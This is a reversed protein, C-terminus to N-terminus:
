PNLVRQPIIRGSKPQPLARTVDFAVSDRSTVLGISRGFFRGYGVIASGGGLRLTVVRAGGPFDATGVTWRPARSFFALHAPIYLFFASFICFDATFSGYRRSFLWIWRLLPPNRQATILILRAPTLDLASDHSEARFRRM